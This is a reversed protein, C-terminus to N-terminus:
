EEKLLFDNNVVKFSLWRGEEALRIVLGERIVDALQSKGKAADLLGQVDQGQYIGQYVIPVSELSAFMPFKEFPAFVNRRDEMEFVNFVFFRLRNQKYPNAQINPGTLEGQIAFGKGYQQKMERLIPELAYTRAGNWYINDGDVIDLNRSCCHLEDTEPDLYYTASTGDIKETMVVPKGQLHELVEPINQIREEDTKVIFSPFLGRSVFHGGIVAPPEYKIIRLTETVDDGAHVDTLEPFVSLPLALGQSLEGKFRMTRLRFGRYEKGELPMIKIKVGKRLFEFAPIEPLLSDIEFYVCLDGPKFEGKKVVCQWGKILALEIFDAGAIPKLSDIVNISALKRAM